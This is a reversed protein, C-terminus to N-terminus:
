EEPPTVHIMPAVFLIRSRKSGIKKWEEDEIKPINKMRRPEIKEARPPMQGPFM